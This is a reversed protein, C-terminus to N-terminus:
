RCPEANRAFTSNMTDSRLGLRLTELSVAEELAINGLNVDPGFERIFCAQQEKRPAEFLVRSAGVASILADVVKHRVEGSEEYIGVTGSERGEAVVLSAGADRDAAAELGWQDPTLQDGPDKSGVESVVLFRQAAVEILERKESLSMGVTGRSVEVRPFGADGAWALCEAAKGQSWALELMTGGLCAGVDHAALMELKESLGTDIYATGWGIKWIDIFGGGADLVAAATVPAVGKDLVHSLGVTRPKAQRHPLDLFMPKIV